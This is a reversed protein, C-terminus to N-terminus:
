SQVLNDANPLPGGHAKSSIGRRLPWKRSVVGKVNLVTFANKLKDCSRLDCRVYGGELNLKINATSDPCWGFTASAHDDSAPVMDPPPRSRPLARRGCGQTADPGGTQPAHPVNRQRAGM